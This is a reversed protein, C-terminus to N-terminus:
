KPAPTTPFPHADGDRTFGITLNENPEFGLVYPPKSSFFYAWAKVSPPEDTTQLWLTGAGTEWKGDWTLLGVDERQRILLFGPADTWTFTGDARLEIASNSADADFGHIRRADDPEIRWTGVVDKAAPQTELFDRMDPASCALAIAGFFAWAIAGAPRQM